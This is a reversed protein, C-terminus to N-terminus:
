GTELRHWDHVSTLMREAGTQSDVLVLGCARGTILKIATTRYREQMSDIQEGLHRAETSTLADTRPTPPVSTGPIRRKEYVNGRVPRHPRAM